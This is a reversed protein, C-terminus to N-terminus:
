SIWQLKKRYQIYFNLLAGVTLAIDDLIGIVPTLDPLMDLPCVDYIIAIIVFALSWKPLKKKM